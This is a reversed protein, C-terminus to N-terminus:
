PGEILFFSDLRTVEMVGRVFPTPSVLAVEAGRMRARSVLHILASLGSSDITQLCSLDVDVRSNEEMIIPEIHELAAEWDSTDFEGELSLTPYRSNGNFSFKM